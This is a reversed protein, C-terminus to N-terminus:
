PKWAEVHQATDVMHRFRTVRGRADFHWLHGEEVEAIRKGTSRVFFEVDILAMVKAGGSFVDKVDFRKMELNAGLAQFFSLVGERGRRPALWPVGRDPYAYEWQVEDAMVDLIAPVDAKAFAAYIAHVTDINSM